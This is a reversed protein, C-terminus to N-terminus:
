LPNDEVERPSSWEIKIWNENDDNRSVYHSVNYGLKNLNDIIEDYKSYANGAKDLENKRIICYYRGDDIAFLIVKEIFEM